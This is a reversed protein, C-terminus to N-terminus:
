EVGAAKLADAYAEWSDGWQYVDRIEAETIPRRVCRACLGTDEDVHGSTTCNSCEGYNPM